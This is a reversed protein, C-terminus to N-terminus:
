NSRLLAAPLRHDPNLKSQQKPRRLWAAVGWAVMGGGLLTLAPPLPLTQNVVSHPQADNGVSESVYTGFPSSNPGHGGDRALQSVSFGNGPTLEDGDFPVALAITAFSAVFALSHIVSATKNM